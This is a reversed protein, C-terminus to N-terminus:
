TEETTNKEDEYDYKARLVTDINSHIDKIMAMTDANDFVVNAINAFLGKWKKNRADVLPMGLLEDSANILEKKIIENLIHECEELAENMAENATIITEIGDFAALSTKSLVQEQEPAPAPKKKQSRSMFEKKPIFQIDKPKQIEDKWEKLFKEGDESLTYLNLHKSGAKKKQLYGKNWINWCRTAMDYDLSEVHLAATIAQHAIPKGHTKVVDLITAINIAGDSCTFTPM